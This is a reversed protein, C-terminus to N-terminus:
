PSLTQKAPSQRAVGQGKENDDVFCNHEFFSQGLLIGLSNTMYIKLRCLGEANKIDHEILKTSPAYFWQDQIRFGIQFPDNCDYYIRLYEDIHKFLREAVGYDPLGMNESDANAM